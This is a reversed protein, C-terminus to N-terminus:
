FSKFFFTLFFLIRRGKKADFFAPILPIIGTSTGMYDEIYRWSVDRASTRLIVGASTGLVDRVSTELIHFLLTWPVDGNPGIHLALPRGRRAGM